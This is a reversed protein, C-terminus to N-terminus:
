YGQYSVFQRSIIGLIDVAVCDLGTLGVIIGSLLGVM